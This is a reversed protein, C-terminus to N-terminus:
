NGVFQAAEFGLVIDTLRSLRLRGAFREIVWLEGDPASGIPRLQQVPFRNLIHHNFYQGHSDAALFDANSESPLPLLSLNCWEPVGPRATTARPLLSSSALSDIKSAGLEHIKGGFRNEGSLRTLRAIV